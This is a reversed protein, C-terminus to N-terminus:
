SRPQEFQALLKRLLEDLQSRERGSLPALMREENAVHDEVARDVLARGEDSLVVRSSRRDDPDPERRAFGAAELRDLRGTMGAPSLLLTKSLAGPTLTFPPGARRLTALVDFDGTQLGHAQFVEEIARSCHATIRALRGFTAMASIDLDPRVDAWQAVVEDVADPM